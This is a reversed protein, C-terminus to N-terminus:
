MTNLVKYNKNQWEGAKGASNEYFNEQLHSIMLAVNIERM